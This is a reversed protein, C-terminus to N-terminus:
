IVGKFNVFSVGSFGRTAKLLLRHRLTGMKLVNSVLTALSTSIIASYSSREDSQRMILMVDTEFSTCLNLCTGALGNCSPACLYKLMDEAAGIAMTQMYCHKGGVPKAFARKPKGGHCIWQAKARRLTRAKTSLHIAVIYATNQCAGRKQHPCM